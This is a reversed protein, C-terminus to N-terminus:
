IESSLSLENVLGAGWVLSYWGGGSVSLSSFEVTYVTLGQTQFPPKEGKSFYMWGTRLPCLLSIKDEKKRKTETPTSWGIEEWNGDDMENTLICLNRWGSSQCTVWFVRKSVLGEESSWSPPHLTGGTTQGRSLFGPRCASPCLYLYFYFWLSFFCHQVEDM